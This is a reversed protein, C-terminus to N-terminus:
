QSICLSILLYEVDKNSNFILQILYFFVLTM